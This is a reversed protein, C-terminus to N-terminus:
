DGVLTKSIRVDRGTPSEVIFCRFPLLVILIDIVSSNSRSLKKIASLSKSFDFFNKDSFSYSIANSPFNPSVEFEKSNM